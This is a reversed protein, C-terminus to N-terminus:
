KTVSRTVAKASPRSPSIKELLIKLLPDAGGVVRADSVGDIALIQPQIWNEADERLENADLSALISM